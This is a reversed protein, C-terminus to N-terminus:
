TIELRAISQYFEHVLKVKAFVFSLFDDFGSCSFNTRRAISRDAYADRSYPVPPTNPATM